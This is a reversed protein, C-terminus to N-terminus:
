VEAWCLVDNTPIDIEQDYSSTFGAYNGKYDKYINLFDCVIVDRFIFWALVFRKIMQESDLESGDHWILTSTNM